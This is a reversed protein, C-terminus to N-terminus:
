LSHRLFSHLPTLFPLDIAKAKLASRRRNRLTVLGPLAPGQRIVFGDAYARNYDPYACRLRPPTLPVVFM